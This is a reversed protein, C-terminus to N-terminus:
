YNNSTYSRNERWKPEQSVKEKCLDDLARKVISCSLNLNTTTKIGLCYM